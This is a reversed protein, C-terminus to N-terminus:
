FQFSYSYLRLLNVGARFLFSIFRWIREEGTASSNMTPYLVCPRISFHTLSSSCWLFARVLSLSHILRSARIARTDTYMYTVSSVALNILPPALKCANQERQSLLHSRFAPRRPYFRARACVRPHYVLHHAFSFFSPYRIVTFFLFLSSFLVFGPLISFVHSVDPITLQNVCQM